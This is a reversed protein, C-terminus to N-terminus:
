QRPIVTVTDSIKQDFFGVSVIRITGKDDEFWLQAWRPFNYNPTVGVLSGYEMPLSDLKTLKMKQLEGKVPKQVDEIRACAIFISTCLIILICFIFIMNKM